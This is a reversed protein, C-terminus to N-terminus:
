GPVPDLAAPAAQGVSEQGMVPRDPRRYVIGDRANEAAPGHHQPSRAPERRRGDVEAPGYRVHNGRAAFELVGEAEGGAMVGNEALVDSVQLVVLRQDEEALREIVHLAEEAHMRLGHRMVEM